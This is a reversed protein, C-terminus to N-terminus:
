ISTNHPLIFRTKEEYRIVFPEMKICLKKCFSIRISLLMGYRYSGDKQREKVLLNDDYMAELIDLISPANPYLTLDIISEAQQITFGGVFSRCQVFTNQSYESLLNWSWNLATDLALVTQSRMKGRLLTFRESLRDEIEHVNLMTTRASAM